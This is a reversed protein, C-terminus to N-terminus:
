ALLAPLKLISKVVTLTNPSLDFTCYKELLKRWGMKIGRKTRFIRSPV